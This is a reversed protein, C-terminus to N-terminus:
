KAMMKIIDKEEMAINYIMLDDIEGKFYRMGREADLVGLVVNLVDGPDTSAEKESGLNKGDVYLTITEPNKVMVAQHWQSDNFTDETYINKDASGTDSLPFRNLYRLIGEDRLELLIGHRIGDAYASFIDQHSFRLEAKFWISITYQPLYFKGPIMVYNDEGSLVLSGGIKGAPNWKAAGIVEGAVSNGSADAVANGSGDDFTWHGVLAKGAGSGACQSLLLVAIALISFIIIKKM